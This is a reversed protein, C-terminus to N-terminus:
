RLWSILSAALALPALAVSGAAAELEGSERKFAGDFVSGFTDLNTFPMALLAETDGAACPVTTTRTQSLTTTTANSHSLLPQSRQAFLSM